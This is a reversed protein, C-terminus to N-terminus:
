LAGRLKKLYEILVPAQVGPEAAFVYVHAGGSKSRCVSLPVKLALARTVIGAHDLGTYQDIDIAGFVCTGDDRVPVIGLGIEGSLHKAYDDLTVTESVTTAKGKAKEGTVAKSPDSTVVYRGKARTLGAFVAAFQEALGLESM